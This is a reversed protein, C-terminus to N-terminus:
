EDDEACDEQSLPYSPNEKNIPCNDMNLPDGPLPSCILRGQVSGVGCDNGEKLFLSSEGPTHAVCGRSDNGQFEIQCAIPYPADAPCEVLVCDGDINLDQTICVGEDVIGDCDNDSLDCVEESPSPCMEDQPRCGDLDGLNEDIQGDCDNDIGDCVENSPGVWDLCALWQEGFTDCMRTGGKCQGIGLTHTPGGYCLPDGTCGCVLGEDIAQDCDNNLGDCIEPFCVRDSESPNLLPDTPRTAM